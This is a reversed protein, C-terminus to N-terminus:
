AQSRDYSQLLALADRETNRTSHVYHDTMRTSAHGVWRAIVPLPVGAESCHTIFTVRLDHFPIRRLGAQKMAPWVGDWSLRNTNVFGEDEGSLFM